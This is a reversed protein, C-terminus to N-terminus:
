GPANGSHLSATANYIGGVLIYKPYPKSISCVVALTEWTVFTLNFRAGNTKIFGLFFFFAFTRAFEHCQM